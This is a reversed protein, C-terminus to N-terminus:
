PAASDGAGTRCELQCDFPERAVHGADPEEAEVCGLARYFAQSEVASHASIYLKEAGRRRAFELAARFLERGIGRRRADQSVHISSLDLYQGRSGLPENEVSAFGKLAGGLFAGRVLGGSAATRRLCEVLVRYDEESWDDIFPDARVMWRGDVRRWCDTVVQRRQFGRFLERCIDKKELDRYVIM